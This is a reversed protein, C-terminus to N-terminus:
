DVHANQELLVSDERPQKLRACARRGMTASTESRVLYTQRSFVPTVKDMTSADDIMLIMFAREWCGILIGTSTNNIWLTFLRADYRYKLQNKERNPHSGPGDNNCGSETKNFGTKDGYNDAGAPNRGFAREQEKQM